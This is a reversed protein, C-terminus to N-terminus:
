DQTLEALELGNERLWVLLMELTGFTDVLLGDREVTFTRGGPDATIRVCRDPSYFVTKHIAM